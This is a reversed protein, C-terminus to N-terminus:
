CTTTPNSHLKQLVVQLRRSKNRGYIGEKCGTTKRLKRAVKGSITKKASSSAGAGLPYLAFSLGGLAKVGGLGVARTQEHVLQILRLLRPRSCRPGHIRGSIPHRNLLNSFFPCSSRNQRRLLKCLTTM